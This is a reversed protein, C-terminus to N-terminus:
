CIKTRGETRNQSSGLFTFPSNSFKLFFSIVCIFTTLDAVQFALREIHLPWYLLQTKSPNEYKHRVLVRIYSKNKNGNATSSVLALTFLVTRIVQVSFALSSVLVPGSKLLRWLGPTSSRTKSAIM